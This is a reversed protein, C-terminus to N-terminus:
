GVKGGLNFFDYEGFYGLVIDFVFDRDKIIDVKKSYFFM